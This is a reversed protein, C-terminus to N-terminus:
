QGPYGTRRQGRVNTSSIDRQCYNGNETGQRGMKASPHLQMGPVIQWFDMEKYKIYCALAPIEPQICPANMINLIRKMRMALLIVTMSVSIRRVM